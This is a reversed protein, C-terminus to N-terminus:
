AGNWRSLLNVFFSFNRLDIEVLERIEPYQIKVAVDRGDHLIARHVQALSASAVPEKNFSSFVDELPRGLERRVVDTMQTYSRPPVRDHLRSLVEVYERPLVDARTGLFQCAKILLGQLRIATAYAREASRRHHRRYLPEAYDDGRVWATLQIRKYGLYIMAVLRAATLFRSLRLLPLTM